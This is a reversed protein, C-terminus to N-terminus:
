FTEPTETAANSLSIFHIPIFKNPVCLYFITSSKLLQAIFVEIEFHFKPLYAAAESWFM